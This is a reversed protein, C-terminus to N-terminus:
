QGATWSQMHGQWYIFEQGDLTWSVEAAFPLWVGLHQRYDTFRGQWPTPVFDNKLGRPRDPALITAIRGDSDLTFSVEAATEGTGATVILRDPGDSRWYLSPNALIAAPALPLEALYRMLEGRTLAPSSGIHAIPIFGLAKVDLVGEGGVLADRISIMGAPGSRARWEFACTTTSITQTASFTMWSSAPDQRMRGKQTLRVDGSQATACLRHALDRVVPPLPRLDAPKTPM